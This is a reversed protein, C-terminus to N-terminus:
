VQCDENFGLYKVIESTRNQLKLSQAELAEFYDANFAARKQERRQQSLLDRTEKSSYDRNRNLLTKLKSLKEEAPVNELSVIRKVAEVLKEASEYANALNGTVHLRDEKTAFYVEQQKKKANNTATQTVKLLTEILMDQLTYYQHAIFCLLYLYRQADRREIQFNQVKITITAYHEIVQTSLQLSQCVPEFRTFLEKIFLLDAINAKVKGPRTSQHFKKLLTVRSRKLAVAQKESAEYMKEDVTLLTDLLSRDVETLCTSLKNLMRKEYQRFANTIITSLANYRPAGIQKRELLELLRGFAEKLRIQKEIAIAAEASLVATAPSSFASYGLKTLTLTRHRLMTTKPYHSAQWEEEIRFCKQVFATDEPYFLDKPYFKNTARFYGLQLIFGIKSASTAFTKVIKDAWDPLAFFHKREEVIFRPPSEFVQIEEKSLIILPTM